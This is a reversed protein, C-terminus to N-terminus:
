NVDARSRKSEQQERLLSNLDDIMDDYLASAEPNLVFDLHGFSKDPVTYLKRFNRFSIRLFELNQKTVFIDSKGTYLFVPFNGSTLDYDPPSNQGYLQRNKTSGHNYQRFGPWHPNALQAYHNIEMIAVGSPVYHQFDAPYVVKGAGGLFYGVVNLPLCNFNPKDSPVFARCVLGGLFRLLFDSGPLIHPGFSDEVNTTVNEFAHLVSLLPSLKHDALSAVPGMLFAGHIRTDYEPRVAATVLFSTSGMSHGVYALSQLRTTHLIYDVMAPIDLAGHEHFSYNWFENDTVKLHTHNTSLGSGRFNGLWVDYGADHLKFALSDKELGVYCASGCTLPSGVLVAPAGPRPVRDLRLIYGDDTTAYHGESPYGHKRFLDTTPRIATLRLVADALPQFNELGNEENLPLLSTNGLAFALNAIKKYSQLEIALSNSIDNHSVSSSGAVLALLVGMWLMKASVVELVELMNKLASWM